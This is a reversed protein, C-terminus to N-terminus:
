KGCRLLTEITLKSNNKKSKSLLQFWIKHDVLYQTSRPLLNYANKMSPGLSRHATKDRCFILEPFFPHQNKHNIPSKLKTSNPGDPIQTSSLYHYIDKDLNKFKQEIEFSTFYLRNKELYVKVGGSFSLPGKKNNKVAILLKEFQERTKGRNKSSLEHICNNFQERNILSSQSENILLIGGWHDRKSIWKHSSKKNTEKVLENQRAVYNKLYSPYKKKIIPILNHRIFNREFKDNLNTPDIVYPMKVVKLITEIQSRTMCMFPRFKQENKVPIGLCSKVQSSKFQQMLSWEFSDDIHHGLYISYNQQKYLELNKNRLERAQLEFNSTSKTGLNLYIFYGDIQMKRTFSKVFELEEDHEKRTGHHFHIFSLQQIKGLNQLQKLVLSLLLSDAGGSLSILAKGSKPYLDHKVMFEDVWGCLLHFERHTLLDAFTPILNIKM